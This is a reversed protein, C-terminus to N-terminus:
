VSNLKIAHQLVRERESQNLGAVVALVKIANSRVQEKSFKQERPKRIAKKYVELVGLKEATERDLENINM